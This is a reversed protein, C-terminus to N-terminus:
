HKEKADSSFDLVAEEDIDTNAAFLWSSSSFAVVLNTERSRFQSKCPNTALFL